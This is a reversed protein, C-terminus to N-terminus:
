DGTQPVYYENLNYSTKGDISLSLDHGIGNGVTNIGNIDELEAVFYPTENVSGGWVFDPTNLYINMVPGEDTDPLNEATGGVRFQNFAGGAERYDNSCAYLNLLGRENSYNIDLPVPITFEFRGNRISDMGSFLTRVHDTYNVPGEGVNDLTYVTERSDMALPHITGNFDDALSGDPTLVRGKVVVKDGASMYPLEDSLDNGNFEDIAVQYDPITIMLAPNGTLNFNLKNDNTLLYRSGQKALRMIDGLRMRGNAARSFMYRIVTKHFEYNPSDYVVRSTSILAIAGGNPNLLALEGASTATDDFRTFDCSATFWIPLRPSSLKEIHEATLLNEESWVTSGSHGTYNVMFMGQNFLQLLRRTADPYSYGTSSSERKYADALIREPRMQPSYLLVSDALDIAHQMFSNDSNSGEADDAVFCVTRKWAGANKNEIYAINKDVVAKAEDATRVTFRGVGIDLRDSSLSTGEGDDLFGFYDDTLYSYRESNSVEFQYSLLFDSPKYSSWASSNMRNDYSSDGFLLLYKPRDVESTYKDYFMKMLRRYATVDPTGSSFENYVQSATVVTVRLGDVKRHVQALREAQTIFATRDPVIIVMDTPELSRLDQNAVSGMNEASSFSGATNVAVFERMRSNAPITFSYIDGNLSGAMEKFDGPITVDWVVTSSTAGSINFTTAQNISQRSRFALYSGNMQLRREYNINIYNLRGSIGSGRNHTVTITTREPKEGTWLYSGTNETAKIYYDTGASALSSSGLNVDNAAVSFSTASSAKASFATIVRANSDTIGTLTFNYNQTNGNVYDYSDYLERGSKSWSYSDNEYLKYENFVSLIQANTNATSESIPFSSDVSSNEILFYYGYDSCYNRTRLFANNSWTWSVSGRAYFLLANATRFSPVLPLDDYPHNSFTNSLLYGGYGYVHVNEPNNFGMRRLESNTLQYVGTDPVRIKVINGTSLISNSLENTRTDVSARTKAIIPTSTVSVKFSNIRQYRGNRYVIPVFRVNLYGKHASISIETKAIPYAPFTEGTEKILEVTKADLNEFEPFEINAQYDYSRYDDPLTISEIVEPLTHIEPLLQWDVTVFHSQAVCPIAFLLLILFHFIKRM